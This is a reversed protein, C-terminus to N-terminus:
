DPSVEEYVFIDVGSVVFLDSIGEGEHCFSCGFTPSGNSSLRGQVGGGESGEMIEDCFKLDGELTHVGGGLGGSPEGVSSNAIIVIEWLIHPFEFEFDDFCFEVGGGMSGGDDVVESGSYQDPERVSDIPHFYDRSRGLSPILFYVLEEALSAERGRDGLLM